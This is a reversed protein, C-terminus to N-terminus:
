PPLRLSVKMRVGRSMAARCFAGFVSPRIRGSCRMITAAPSSRAVLRCSGEGASRRWRLVTECGDRAVFIEQEIRTGDATRFSWTPWPTSCFDTIRQMGDPYLVDPLYRQSSLAIRGSATEIWAEIGNVLVIRGTPPTTATLLLAHYRRTREGGVTGSAFGGLSDAELWEAAPDTIGTLM